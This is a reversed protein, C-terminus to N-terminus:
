LRGRSRHAIARLVADLSSAGVWPVVPVGRDTLADLATDRRLRTIRWALDTSASGQSGLYRPLTDVVIARRHVVHDAVADRIDQSTLPSLVIVLASDPTGALLRGPTLRAIAARDCTALQALAPDTWSRGTMTAPLRMDSLGMTRLGVRDGRALHYSVLAAAARLTLDLSTPHDPGDHAPGIDTTNDLLILVHSEQDSYTARVHVTGTRAFTPWHILRLRDGSQYPHISEFESGSGRRASRDLGVIGRPHPMPARPAFREPLPTVLVSGSGERSTTAGYALWPSLAYVVPIPATRQGWRFPRYTQRFVGPSAQPPRVSRDAQWWPDNAPEHVVTDAGPHHTEAIIVLPAGEPVTSRDLRVSTTPQHVPRRVEGWTAIVVFPVALVFMNARGLVLALVLGLLGMASARVHANTPRWRSANLDDTDLLRRWPM